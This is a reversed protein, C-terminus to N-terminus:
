EILHWNRHCCTQKEGLLCAMWKLHRHIDVCLQCMGIVTLSRKFVDYKEQASNWFFFTIEFKKVDWKNTFPTLLWSQTHNWCNRNSGLMMGWCYAHYRIEHLQDSGKRVHTLLSTYIKIWEVFRFYNPEGIFIFIPNMLNSTARITM